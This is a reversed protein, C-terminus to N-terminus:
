KIQVKNITKVFIPRGHYRNIPLQPFSALLIFYKKRSSKCETKIKKM